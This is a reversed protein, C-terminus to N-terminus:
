WTSEKGYPRETFCLFVANTILSYMLIHNGTAPQQMNEIYAYSADLQKRDRFSIISFYTQSRESDTDMPTNKVREGLPRADEIVDATKLDEIFISYASEFVSFDVDAKLDFSSIMQIM